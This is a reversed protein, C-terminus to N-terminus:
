IHLQVSQFYVPGLQSLGLQGAVDTCIHCFDGGLLFSNLFRMKITIQLPIINYICFKERFCGSYNERGSLDKTSFGKGVLTTQQNVSTQQYCNCVTQVWISPGPLHAQDPDLSNSM